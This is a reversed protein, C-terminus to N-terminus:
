SLGRGATYLLHVRHAYWSSSGFHIGGSRARFRCGEILLNQLPGYSCVVSAALAMTLLCLTVKSVDLMM